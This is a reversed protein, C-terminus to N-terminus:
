ARAIGLLARAEEIRAAAIRVDYNQTLASQILDRLADDQFVDWWKQDGFSAVETAGAEPTAGRYETPEPLVPRKYNPGTLCSSSLAAFFSVGLVIARKGMEIRRM